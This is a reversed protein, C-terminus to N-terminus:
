SNVLRYEAKWEFLIIGFESLNRLLIETLSNETNSFLIILALRIDKFKGAKRFM